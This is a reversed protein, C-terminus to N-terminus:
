PFTRPERRLFREIQRRHRLIHVIAHELRMELDYVQGWPNVMKIEMMQEDTLDFKDALTEATYALMRILRAKSDPRSLVSFISEEGQMACAKRIVNAYGYGSHVVHSMITQISRCHEDATRTDRVLEFENDDVSDIVAILEAAAREYEDLLAGVPGKRYMRKLGM